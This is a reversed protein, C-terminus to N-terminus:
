LFELVHGDHGRRGRAALPGHRGGAARGRVGRERYPLGAHGGGHQRHPGAAPQPRPRPGRGRARDCGAVRQLGVAGRDAGRRAAGLARGFLAGAAGPGEGGARRVSLGGGGARGAGGSQGRHLHEPDRGGWRVSRYSVAALLAVVVAAAGRTQAGSLPVFTGLYEAFVLALAAIIMPVLFLMTWGLLFAPLRGYAVTLYVYIGGARPFLAALEALALAGFLAVMGGVVWVLMMVWVTGTHDAVSAPVRFIGSGIMSGVCFAVASWVGLRRPLADERQEPEAEATAPDPLVSSM